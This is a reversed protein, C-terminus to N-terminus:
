LVEGNYQEALNRASKEMFIPMMQSMMWGKMGKAVFYRRMHLITGEEHDFALVVGIHSEFNDVGWLPRAIMGVGGDYHEIVDTEGEKYSVQSGQGFSGNDTNSNDITVQKPAPSVWEPYSAFDAVIAMAQEQSIPLFVKVEAQLPATSFDRVNITELTHTNPSLGIDPDSKLGSCATFTLSALVLALTYKISKM